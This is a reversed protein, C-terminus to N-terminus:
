YAFLKMTNANSKETFLVTQRQRHKYRGKDSHTRIQRHRGTDSDTWTLRHNDMERMDEGSKALGNKHSRKM